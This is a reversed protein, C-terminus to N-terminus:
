VGNIRGDKTMTFRRKEVGVMHATCVPLIIEHGVLANEDTWGNAAMISCPTVGAHRALEIVSMEGTYKVKVYM